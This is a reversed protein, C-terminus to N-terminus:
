ELLQMVLTDAVRPRIKFKGGEEQGFGLNKKDIM